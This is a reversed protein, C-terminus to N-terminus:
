SYKLLFFLHAEKSEFVLRGSSLQINHEELAEIIKSPPYWATGGTSVEVFNKWVQYPVEIEYM